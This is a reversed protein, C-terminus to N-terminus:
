DNNRSSTQDSISNIPIRVRFRIPSPRTNQRQCWHSIMWNPLRCFTSRQNQGHTLQHRPFFVIDCRSLSIVTTGTRNHNRGCTINLFNIALQPDPVVNTQKTCCLSAGLNTEGRCHNPIFGRRPNKNSRILCTRTWSKGQSITKDWNPRRRIIHVGNGINFHATIPNFGYRRTHSYGMFGMGPISQPTEM